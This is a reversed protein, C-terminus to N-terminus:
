CVGTACAVFPTSCLRVEVNKHGAFAPLLEDQGGTYVGEILLWVRGDAEAADRLACWGAGPKTSKSTTISSM